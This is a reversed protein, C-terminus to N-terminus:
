VVSTLVFSGQLAIRVTEYLPVTDKQKVMEEPYTLFDM